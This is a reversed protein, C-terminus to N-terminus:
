LPVYEYQRLGLANGLDRIPLAMLSKAFPVCTKDSDQEWGLVAVGGSVVPLVTLALHNLPPRHLLNQLRNGIFDFEPFFAGTTLVDPM